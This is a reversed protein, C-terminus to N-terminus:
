RGKELREALFIPLSCDKIKNQTIKYNYSVRKLSVEAKENDYIAYCSRRDFDRPQGVSGTNILYSCAENVRVVNQPCLIIENEKQLMISAWHTHGIFNIQHELGKFADFVEEESDPFVYSWAPPNSPSSHTCFMNKEVSSLSLSSLFRKSNETLHQKTWEMATFAYYTFNQTDIRGIAAYDHNGAVCIDVHSRVLDICEEPDPYYGVIDGLCIVKDISRKTIDKLVAKLAELNGHIDSIIAYKM